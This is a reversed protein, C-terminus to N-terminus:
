ISLCISIGSKLSSSVSSVMIGYLCWTVCKLGFHVQGLFLEELEEDAYPMKFSRSM